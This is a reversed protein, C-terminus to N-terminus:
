NKSNHSLSCILKAAIVEHESSSILVISPPYEVNLDQERELAGEQGLFAIQRCDLRHFYSEALLFFSAGHNTVYLHVM